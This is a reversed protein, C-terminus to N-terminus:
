RKENELMARVESYIRTKLDNTSERNIEMNKVPIINLM